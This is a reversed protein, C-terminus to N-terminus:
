DHRRLDYCYVGDMGRVILRGDVILNAIPMEGYATTDNHPPARNSGIPEFRQPDARVWQMRQRGHQCGPQFLIRADVGTGWGSLSVAESRRLPRAQALDEVLPKGYDPARLASGVGYFGPWDQGPPLALAARAGDDLAIGSLTGETQKGGVDNRWTGTIRNAEFHLELALRM